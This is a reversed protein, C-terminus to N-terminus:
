RQGRNSETYYIVGHASSISAPIAGEPTYVKQLRQGPAAAAMMHETPVVSCGSLFLVIALFRM